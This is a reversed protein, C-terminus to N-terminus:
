TKSAQTRHNAKCHYPILLIFFVYIGRVCICSVNVNEESGGKQMQQALKKDEKM